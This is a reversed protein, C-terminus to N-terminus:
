MDQSRCTKEAVEMSPSLYSYFRSQPEAAAESSRGSERKWGEGESPKWFHMGEYGLPLARSSLYPGVCSEQTPEWLLQQYSKRPSRSVQSPVMRTAHVPVSSTTRPGTWCESTCGLEPVCSIMSKWRMKIATEEAKLMIEGWNLWYLLTSNPLANQQSYFDVCNM